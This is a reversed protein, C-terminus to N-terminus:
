TRNQLCYRITKCDHDYMRYGHRRLSQPFSFKEDDGGVLRESEGLMMESERGRQFGTRYAICAVAVRAATIAAAADACANAPM